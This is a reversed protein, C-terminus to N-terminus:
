KVICCLMDSWDVIYVFDLFIVSHIPDPQMILLVPVVITM